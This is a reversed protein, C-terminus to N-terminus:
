QGNKLLYPTLISDISINIHAIDIAIKDGNINVKNIINPTAINNVRVIIPAIIVVTHSNIQLNNLPM